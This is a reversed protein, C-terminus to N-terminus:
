PEVGEQDALRKLAEVTDRLECKEEHPPNNSYNKGRCGGCRGYEDDYMLLELWEISKLIVERSM